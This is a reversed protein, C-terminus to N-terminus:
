SRRHRSTYCAAKCLGDRRCLIFRRSPSYTRLGAGQKIWMLVHSFEFELFGIEEALVQAHHAVLDAAEDVLLDNRVALGPLGGALDRALQEAVQAGQAEQAHPM